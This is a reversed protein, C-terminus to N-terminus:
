RFTELRNLENLVQANGMGNGLNDPHTQGSGHSVGCRLALFAGCRHKRDGKPISVRSQASELADRGQQELQDWGQDCPVGALMAIIQQDKDTIPTSTVGDWPVYKLHYKSTEGCLEELKYTRKHGSGNNRGVFGAQTVSAKEM